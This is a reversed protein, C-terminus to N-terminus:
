FIKSITEGEDCFKRKELGFFTNWYAMLKQFDYKLWIKLEVAKVSFSFEKSKHEFMAM